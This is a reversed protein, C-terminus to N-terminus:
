LEERPDVTTGKREESSCAYMKRSFLHFLVRGGGKKRGTKKKGTKRLLRGKSKVWERRGTTRGGVQLQIELYIMKKEKTQKNGRQRRGEKQNRGERTKTEKKKKPSV